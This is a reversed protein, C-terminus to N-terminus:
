VFAKANEGRGPCQTGKLVTSFKEHFPSPISIEICGGYPVRKPAVEQDNIIDLLRKTKEFAKKNKEYMIFFFYHNVLSANLLLTKSIM